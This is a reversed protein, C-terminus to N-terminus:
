RAAEFAPQNRADPAVASRLFLDRDWSTLVV